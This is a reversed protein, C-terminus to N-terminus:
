DGSKGITGVYSEVFNFASDNLVWRKDDVTNLVGDGLLTEASMAPPRLFCHQPDPKRHDNLALRIRSWDEFFYEQLLPLVQRRFVGALDSLLSDSKLHMFYTHGICHDRDLLVEIRANIAELLESLDIKEEIVVGSLRKPEPPIEVFSFRRRLAIDLGTLSRDATNMTGVVYVNKPVSFPKKSYPLMVELAEPQGKRKSDELLTILEGFIRSVNGRNIEDIILVRRADADRQTPSATQGKQNSSLLKALKALDISGAKLKYITRQVFQKDMLEGYPLAPEYVRLWRVRRKQAFGDWTEPKPAYEYDGTIEGIARFKFNGETVVILDGKRVQLLFTAVSGVAFDPLKAPDFGADRYSAQIDEVTKCGSFDVNKGYGLLAYGGEICEEYIEDEDIQTNGLSMKWITREDVDAPAEAQRTVQVDASACIAKFVGDVVEYHLGGGDDADGPLPRLGEVFDEYSFSQHFTVFQVQKAHALEDFRRKLVARDNKNAAYFAPDIIRLAEEITRHTKGTGPPGYFIQNLPINEVPVAPATAPVPPTGPEEGEYGELLRRLSALDQVKVKVIASGLGLAPANAALNSSRSKTPEYEMISSVAASVPQLWPGQSLYLTPTKSDLALAVQRGSGSEFGAMKETPEKIPKFGNSSQLYELAAQTTLQKAEIAEVQKWIEDGLSLIHKSGLRATLQSHLEPASVQKGAGAATRLHDLKYVDVITPHERNQYLFAIKWKTAPGLDAKDVAQLDGRHAAHAVKAVERRVAEFAQEQTTGYKTAWGYDAGYSMGDGSVKATKNKRGFIGFKFASGGWISGLSETRSEIWYTFCEKDGAKSYEPLTMQELRELPWAALFADWLQDREPLPENM